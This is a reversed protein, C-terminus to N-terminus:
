DDSEDDSEPVIPPPQLGMSVRSFPLKLPEEFTFATNMLMRSREKETVKRGAFSGGAASRLDQNNLYISKIEDEIQKVFFSSSKKISDLTEKVQRWDLFLWSEELSKKIQKVDGRRIISLFQKTAVQKLGESYRNSIEKDKFHKSIMEWDLHDKNNEIKLLDLSDKEIADIFYENFKNKVEVLIPNAGESTKAARAATFADTWNVYPCVIPILSDIKNSRIEICLEANFETSDRKLKEQYKAELLKRIDPATGPCKDLLIEFNVSEKLSKENLFEKIKGIVELPNGQMLTEIGKNVFFSKSEVSTLGKAISVVDIYSAFKFLKKATKVDKFNGNESKELCHILVNKVFITKYIVSNDPISGASSSFSGAARAKSTEEQLLLDWNIKDLFYFYIFARNLPKLKIMEDLRKTLETSLKSQLTERKSSPLKSVAAFVENWSDVPVRDTDSPFYKNIDITNVDPARLAEVRFRAGTLLAKIGPLDKTSRMVANWDKKELLSASRLFLRVKEEDENNIAHILFRIFNAKTEPSKETVAQWDVREPHSQLCNKFAKSYKDKINNQEVVNKANAYEAEYKNLQPVFGIMGNTVQEELYEIAQERVFSPTCEEILEPFRQYLSIDKGAIADEYYFHSFLHKIIPQYIINRILKDQNKAKDMLYQWDVQGFDSCVRRCERILQNIDMKTIDEYSRIVGLIPVANKRDKERILENSKYPAIVDCVRGWPIIDKVPITQGEFPKGNAFKDFLKGDSDQTSEIVTKALLEKAEPKEEILFLIEHSMLEPAKFLTKLEREDLPDKGLSQIIFNEFSRKLLSGSGASNASDYLSSWDDVLMSFQLLREINKTQNPTFVWSAGSGVRLAYDLVNNFSKKYRNLEKDDHSSKVNEMFIKLWKEVQTHDGKKIYRKLITELTEPGTYGQACLTEIEARDFAEKDVENAVKRAESVQSADIRSAYFPNEKMYAVTHVYASYGARAIWKFPTTVPAAAYEKVGVKIEYNRDFVEQAKAVVKKRLEKGEDSLYSAGLPGTLPRSADGLRSPSISLDPDFPEM